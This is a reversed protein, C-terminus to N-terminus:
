PSYIGVCRGADLLKQVSERCVASPVSLSLPSPFTSPVGQTPENNEGIFQCLVVIPRTAKRHVRVELAERGNDDEALEYTISDYRGVGTLRTLREDMQKPNLPKGLIPEFFKEISAAADSNVETVKVYQPAGSVYQIRAKKKKMYEAWDADDLAYKLLINSKEQAADYGIKILKDSKEYDM